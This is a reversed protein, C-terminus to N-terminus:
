EGHELDSCFLSGFGESHLYVGSCLCFGNEQALISINGGVFDGFRAVGFLTGMLRGILDPYGVTADWLGEKAM